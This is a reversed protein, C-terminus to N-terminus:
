IQYRLQPKRTYTAVIGVILVGLVVQQGYGNLGYGVLVSTLLTLVVTGLVTKGYGGQGGLLSTGGVAVAAITTFLYPDGIGVFGGGTFGLLVVGTGASFLGSLAFAAIWKRRTSVLMLEAASRNGGM